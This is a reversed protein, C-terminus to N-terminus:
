TIYLHLKVLALISSTDGNPIHITSLRSLSAHYVTLHGLCAVCSYAGRAKVEMCLGLECGRRYVASCSPSLMLWCSM